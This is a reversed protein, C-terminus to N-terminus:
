KSWHIAGRLAANFGECRQEFRLDIATLQGMSYSVRDVVFWGNLSNCGTSPGNWDMGGRSANHFPYRQLNGYYGPQLQSLSNMGVFEGRSGNAMIRFAATLNTEVTFSGTAPTLLETRGGGVYDGLESVIYAYNGAPPQFSPGPSWLGAPVAQPGPAATTDDARWHLQGRLPTTENDCRQEFRLDIATLTAGSYSVNDVVFWGDLRNCGRGEGSWQLGGLVPNHFPYRMLNAYYGVTLQPMGQMGQFDGDWSQDGSVGVVLHSGDARVRFTANSQNYAFTRGASIYNGYGGELYLYNGAAMEASPSVKWLSSPIPAPGPQVVNDANARTWHIQGRLPAGTGECYQEFRLDLASLVGNTQVINDIAVWGKITNCGRGEGGWDLGGVARDAFPARTLDKFYGAQLKGAGQPLLFNGNWGQDGYVRVEIGLTTANLVMNANAQTYLYTRGQGIYEGSGSQLFITNGNAPVAGAPPSWLGAPIPYALEPATVVPPAVVPPEVVPPNTAVPPTVVPPVTAVPPAVPASDGGGSGGGGCAALLATLLFGSVARAMSFQKMNM